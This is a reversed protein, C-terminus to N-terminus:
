ESFNLLADDFFVENEPDAIIKLDTAEKSLENYSFYNKLYEQLEKDLEIAEKLLKTSAKEGKSITPSYYKIGGNKLLNDNKSITIIKGDDECRAEIYPILSSTTFAINALELKDENILAVYASVCFTGGKSKVTEKIEKYVGKAIEVKKKIGRSDKSYCFVALEDKSINRVENAVINGKLETSRGRITSLTDLLIFSVPLDVLVSTEQEKDYYSLVNETAKWQLFKKVPNSTNRPQSLSM